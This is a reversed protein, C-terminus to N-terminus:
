SSYVISNHASLKLDVPEGSYFSVVLVNAFRLIILDNYVPAMFLRRRETNLCPAASPFLSRVTRLM